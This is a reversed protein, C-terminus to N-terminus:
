SIGLQELASMLEEEMPVRNLETQIKGTQDIIILRPLVRVNYQMAVTDKLDRLVPFTISRKELFSKVTEINAENIVGLVVLGSAAYREHLKQLITLTNVSQPNQTTWFSM